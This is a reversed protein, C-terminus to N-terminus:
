EIERVEIGMLCSRRRKAAWTRSCAAYVSSPLSHM